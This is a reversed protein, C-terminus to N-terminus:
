QHCEEKNWTPIQAHWIVQPDNKASKPMMMKFGFKRLTIEPHLLNLRPNHRIKSPMEMPGEFISSM